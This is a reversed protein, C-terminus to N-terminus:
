GWSAIIEKVESREKELFAQYESDLTKKSKQNERWKEIIKNKEILSFDIPTGLHKNKKETKLIAKMPETSYAMQEIQLPELNKVRNIVRHIVALERPELEPQFRPKEGLTHNKKPIDSTGRSKSISIQMEFGDMNTIENGFNVALPGKEQRYYTEGTITDSLMLVAEADILYVIKALEIAGLDRNIHSLIYLVVSQLKSPNM